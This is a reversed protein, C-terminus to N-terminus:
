AARARIHSAVKGVNILGDSQDDRCYVVDLLYLASHERALHFRCHNSVKELHPDFMFATTPLLDFSSWALTGVLIQDTLGFQGIGTFELKVADRMEQDLKVLLYWPGQGSREARGIRRTQRFGLHKVNDVM